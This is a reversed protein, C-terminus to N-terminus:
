IGNTNYKYIYFINNKCESIFLQRFRFPSLLLCAHAALTIKTAQQKLYPVSQIQRRALVLYIVTQNNSRM